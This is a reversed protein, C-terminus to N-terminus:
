IKYYCRQTHINSSELIYRRTSESYVLTESTTYQRWLPATYNTNIFM